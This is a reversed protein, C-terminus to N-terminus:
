FKLQYSMLSSAPIWGPVVELKALNSDELGSTFVHVKIFTQKLSDSSSASDQTSPTVISKLTDQIVITGPPLSLLDVRAPGPTSYLAQQSFIVDYVVPRQGKIILGTTAIVVVMFALTVLGYFLGQPLKQHPRFTIFSLAILILLSLILLGWLWIKTPLARQITAIPLLGKQSLQDTVSPEPIGPPVTNTGLAKLTLTLNAILQQDGPKIAFGTLYYYLAAKLDGSKYAFNGLNFYADTPERRSTLIRSIWSQSTGTASLLLQTAPAMAKSAEKFKGRDYLAMAGPFSQQWVAQWSSPLVDSAEEAQVSCFMASALLIWIFRFFRTKM